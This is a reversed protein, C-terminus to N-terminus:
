LTFVKPVRQCVWNFSFCLSHLNCYSKFLWCGKTFPHQVNWNCFIPHDAKQKNGKGQMKRQQQKNTITRIAGSCNMEPLQLYKSSLFVAAAATVVKAWTKFALQPGLGARPWLHTQPTFHSYAILYQTMFSLFVFDKRSRFVFFLFLCFPHAGIVSTFNSNM